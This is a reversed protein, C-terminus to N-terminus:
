KEAWRSLEKLVPALGPPRRDSVPEVCSRLLTQLRKPMRAEGFREAAQGPHFETGALAAAALQGLSYLDARVTTVGSDVEPARFPDEPWESSVSPAGDMLKALEFDTLVAGGDKDSILVRSPALERFVIGANHLAELGRAIELLLRPLRERPWSAERLSDALTKEGVWADIVWWGEDNPHPTSTHNVVIHPHMGVRACVDGHRVLKHRMGERVTPPLCSLLYFKGRGQKAATHRHQM